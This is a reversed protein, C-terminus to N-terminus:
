RTKTKKIERSGEIGKIVSDENVKKRTPKAYRRKRDMSEDSVQQRECRSNGDWRM